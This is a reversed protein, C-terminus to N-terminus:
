YLWLCACLEDFRHLASMIWHPNSFDTVSNNNTSKPGLLGGYTNSSNDTHEDFLAIITSWVFHCIVKKKPAIHEQKQHLRPICCALL